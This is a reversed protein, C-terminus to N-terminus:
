LSVYEDGLKIFELKDGYHKLIERATEEDEVFAYFKNRYSAVAGTVRGTKEDTWIRQLKVEETCDLWNLPGRFFYERAVLTQIGRLIQRRAECPDKGLLRLAEWFHGLSECIGLEVTQEKLKEYTATGDLM